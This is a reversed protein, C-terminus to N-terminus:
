PRQESDMAKSASADRYAHVAYPNRHSTWKFVLLCAGVLGAILFILRQVAKDQFFTLFESFTVTAPDASLLYALAMGAISVALGRYFCVITWTLYIM